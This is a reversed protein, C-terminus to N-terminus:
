TSAYSTYHTPYEVIKKLTELLDAPDDKYHFLESHSFLFPNNTVYKVLTSSTGDDLDETVIMSDSSVYYLTRGHVIYFSGRMRSITELDSPDKSNEKILDGGSAYFMYVPPTAREEDPFM